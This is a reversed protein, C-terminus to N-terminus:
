NIIYFPEYDHYIEEISNTSTNYKIKIYNIVISEIEELNKIKEYLEPDEKQVYNKNLNRKQWTKVYVLAEQERFQYSEELIKVNILGNSYVNKIYEKYSEKENLDEKSSRSKYDFIIKGNRKIQVKYLNELLDSLNNSDKSYLINIYNKVLLM